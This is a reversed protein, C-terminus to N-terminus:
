WEEVGGGWRRVRGREYCGKGGRGYPGKNRTRRRDIDGKKQKSDNGNDVYKREKRTKREVKTM